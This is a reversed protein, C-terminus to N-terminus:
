VVLRREITTVDKTCGFDGDFRQFPRVLHLLIEYNLTWWVLQPQRDNRQRTTEVFDGFDGPKVGLGMPPVCGQYKMM